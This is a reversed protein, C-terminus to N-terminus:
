ICACRTLPRQVGEWKLELEEYIGVRPLTILLLMRKLKVKEPCQEHSFIAGLICARNTDIFPDLPRSVDKFLRIADPIIKDFRNVDM